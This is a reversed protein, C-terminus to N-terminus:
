LSIVFIKLDNESVLVTFSELFLENEAVNSSINGLSLKELFVSFSLPM